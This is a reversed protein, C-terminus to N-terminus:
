PVLGGILFLGVFSIVLSVRWCSMKKEKGLNNLVLWVIGGWLLVEGTVSCVAGIACVPMGALLCMGFAVSGAMLLLLEATHQYIAERNERVPDSNVALLLFGPAISGALSGSLVRMFQSSEWFGLYSGVGDIGIPLIAAATLFAQPLTFVKGAQM